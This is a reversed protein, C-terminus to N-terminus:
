CSTQRSLLRLLTDRNSSHAKAIEGQLKCQQLKKNLRRTSKNLKDGLCREEFVGLSSLPIRVISVAIQGRM